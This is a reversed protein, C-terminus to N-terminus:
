NSAASKKDGGRLQEPFITAKVREGAGGEAIARDEQIYFIIRPGVVENNGQKVVAPSGTLTITQAAENFVSKSGTAVRDGQTIHVDGEAVIEKMKKLDESYSATLSKSQMTMEGQVAVVRGTYTITSKKRDVEMRDSTIVIPADKDYKFGGSEKKAPKAPSQPSQGGTEAAAYAGTTLGLWVALAGALGAGARSTRAIKTKM